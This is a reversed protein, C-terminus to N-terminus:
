QKYNNYDPSTNPGFHWVFCEHKDDWSVSVAYLPIDWHALMANAMLLLVDHDNKYEDLGFYWAVCFNDHDASELHCLILDMETMENVKLNTM